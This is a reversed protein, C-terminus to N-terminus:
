RRVKNQKDVRAQIEGSQILGVVAEELQEVTWGFAQSMREMRISAFPQFYLVLARNKILNIINTVHPALYVDLLHRPQYRDLLELVTSFKSAMYAEVLERVYPEQEIYIGFGDNDLVQAKIATRPYTALACLM